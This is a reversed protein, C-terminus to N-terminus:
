RQFRRFIDQVADVPLSFREATAKIASESDGGQKLSSQIELFIVKDRITKISESIAQKKIGLIEIISGSVEEAADDLKLLSSAVASLYDLVWQPYPLEAGTKRQWNSCFDMAHWAWIPDHSEEYEDEFSTLIIKYSDDDTKM